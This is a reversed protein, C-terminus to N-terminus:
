MLVIDAVTIRTASIRPKGVRTGPTM